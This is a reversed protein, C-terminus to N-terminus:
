GGYQDSNVFNIFPDYSTFFEHIGEISLAFYYYDTDEPYLAAKISALGPNAIPGAPLGECVYTNYPSDYHVDYEAGDLTVAYLTSSDFQLQTFADSGLRNYVVSSITGRESDAGAEKEILSAIIVIEEMSYGLEEMRTRYEETMKANFNSLMKNLVRDPDDNIYFTYTDPFLYGELRVRDGLPRTLFDYDFDYNAATEWLDEAFCVGEEELLVAIQDITYGEPIMISTEVRVGGSRTMGNVLARYDYITNLEYTGATIKEEANSLSAFLKFLPKYKILGQEYLINTVDEIEYNKPVTIEVVKEEKGLALVDMAAIWGVCALILSVCMIFAFYLLGGVCGTRRRKIRKIPMVFGGDDQKGYEAEFDFDVQFDAPGTDYEGSGSLDAAQQPPLNKGPQKPEESFGAWDPESASYAEDLIDDFFIEENPNEQNFNKNESM